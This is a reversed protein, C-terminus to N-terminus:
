VGGELFQRLVPDDSPPVAPGSSKLPPAPSSPAVVFFDDELDVMDTTLQGPVQGGVSQRAGNIVSHEVKSVLERDDIVLADVVQFSNMRKIRGDKDDDFSAGKATTRVLFVVEDGHNIEDGVADDLDFNGKFRGEFAEVGFGDFLQPQGM